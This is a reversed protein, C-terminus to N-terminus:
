DSFVFLDSEAALGNEALADVTQRTHEPRNYVFLAIPAFVM